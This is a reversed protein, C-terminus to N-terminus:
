FPEAFERVDALHNTMNRGYATVREYRLASATTMTKAKLSSVGAAACARGSRIVCFREKLGELPATPELKVTLKLTFFWPVPVARAEVALTRIAVDDEVTVLLSGKSNLTLTGDRLAPLVNLTLWDTVM